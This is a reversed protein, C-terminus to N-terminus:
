RRCVKINYNKYRNSSLKACKQYRDLNAFLRFLNQKCQYEYERCTCKSRPTSGAVTLVEFGATMQMYPRPGRPRATKELSSFAPFTRFIMRTPSLAVSGVDFSCRSDSKKPIKDLDSKHRGAASTRCPVTPWCGHGTFWAWQLPFHRQLVITSSMKWCFLKTKISFGLTNFCFRCLFKM